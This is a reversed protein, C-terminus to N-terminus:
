QAKGLWQRIVMAVVQPDKEAMERIRQSQIEASVRQRTLRRRTQEDMDENIEEDVVLPTKPQAAVFVEAASQAQQTQRYKVWQPKVGFRWMLWAIIAILIIKGYDLVQAIFQPNELMSPQEEVVTNNTFLSNTISLSDGRTSSYGMAERTLSEIQQMMEPSLPKMQQTGDEGDQPLYNIIVAVSLRDIVGIQRQTHSIKRDVEYNTTEDSQSLSSGNNSPSNQASNAGKNDTSIPASPASPPQNSLAGPVGGVGSTNNQSSQSNQRSRVAASNPTQNPKYEESTQEVKSFDMQATVQAHVNARGVLPSIIDEIRQKLHSEMEKTMKIQANNASQQSNDNNTLLRGTQDVITVNAATLGSVSSSVMHVIATIQGEDLMRGPLLGVTVSATPLKQERVFLTPKPIALHVRANQVPSLSEITRSLEGELARQYNVQESFQSIGFQEKDLLEFGTNGGKPLGSQALKLRLEHVKEAPVLIASGNDAIQYPVNMQTLQSVIDGGDKASLNSLLVRYDPSRLWLLLAVVVAIAAAGAIMLPIKPSAKFRAAISAFGKSAEGTEKSAASM